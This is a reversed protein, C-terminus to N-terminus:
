TACGDVLDFGALALDALTQHDLEVAGPIVDIRRSRPRRLGPGHFAQRDVLKEDIGAQLIALVDV